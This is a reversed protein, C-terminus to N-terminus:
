KNKKKRSTFYHNKNVKLHMSEIVSGTPDSIKFKRNTMKM